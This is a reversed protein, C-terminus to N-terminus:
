QKRQLALQVLKAAQERIEKMIEPTPDEGDKLVMEARLGALLDRM